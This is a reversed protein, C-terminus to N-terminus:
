KKLITMIKEITAETVGCSLLFAKVQEAIPKGPAYSAMIDLFEVYYDAYRSRFGDAGEAAGLAYSSLGTIEYDLHISDIDEGALARLYFAIMGTRDAGGMCHMYVPYVTEDSLFEMIRCIGQKHEDFVVEKYPRYPLQVLAVEEGAPCVDILGLWPKRLDLETKIKLENIFTNKGAETITFHGNLESGRYLMGQRLAIGGVDRVNLLGDVRIFRFLNDKTEFWNSQGGDVRWYYKTGIELNTLTCSNKQTKVVAADTFDEKKSLEFVAEESADEWVFTLSEPYTYESGDKLPRLWQLAKDIGEREIIGIFENQIQTHTDFVYGNQPFILKAM